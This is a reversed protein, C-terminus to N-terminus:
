EILDDLATLQIGPQLGFFAEVQRAQVKDLLTIGTNYGQKCGQLGTSAFLYQLHQHLGIM